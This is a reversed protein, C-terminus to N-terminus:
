HMNTTLVTAKFARPRQIPFQKQQLFKLLTTHLSFATTHHCFTELIYINLTLCPDHTRQQHRLKSHTVHLHSCALQLITLGQPFVM